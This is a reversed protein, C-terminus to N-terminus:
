EPIHVLHARPEVNGAADEAHASLRKPAANKEFTTQWQAFNPSIAAAEKGNVVVRQVVCNDTTTGCVRLSGDKERLVSMIVTAPPLDDIPALQGPFEQEGPQHGRPLFDKEISVDDLHVGRYAHHDYNARWIAYEAHYVDLGDVM